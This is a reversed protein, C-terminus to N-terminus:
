PDWVAPSSGTSTQYVGAYVQNRLVFGKGAAGRDSNWTPANVSFSDTKYEPEGEGLVTSFIMKEGQSFEAKRRDSGGRSSLNLM